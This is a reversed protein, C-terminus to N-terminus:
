PASVTGRAREAVRDGPKISVKTRRAWARAFQTRKLVNGHLRSEKLGVFRPQSDYAGIDVAVAPGIDQDGVIGLGISQPNILVVAGELILRQHAPNGEIAGAGFLGVHSDGQP